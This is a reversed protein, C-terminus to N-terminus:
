KGQMPEYAIITLLHATYYLICQPSAHQFESLVIFLAEPIKFPTASVQAQYGMTGFREKVRSLQLRGKSAKVTGARLGV